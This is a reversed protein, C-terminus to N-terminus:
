RTAATLRRMRRGPDCFASGEFFERRNTVDEGHPKTGVDV